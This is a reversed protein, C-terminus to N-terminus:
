RSDGFQRVLGAFATREEPTLEVPEPRVVAGSAPQPQPRPEGPGPSAPPRHRYAARFEQRVAAMMRRRRLIHQLWVLLVATVAALVTVGALRLIAVHEPM